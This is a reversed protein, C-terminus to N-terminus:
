PNLLEVTYTELTLADAANATRGSIVLSQSKTTDIAATIPEQGTTGFSTATNGYGYQSNTVNRNTIDVQVRMGRVAVTSGRQDLFSVGGFTINPGKANTNSTMTFAATVRLCGNASLSNAPIPITALTTDLTTGTVSSPVASQGPLRYQLSQAPVSAAEGLLEITYGELTVTDAVNSLVASLTLNQDKTTDVSTTQQNATANGFGGASNFETIQSNTVGRARIVIQQQMVSTTTNTIGQVSSGGFRTFLIKSDANNTYSWLSTIRIAGNPGLTGAPVRVSALVTESTTGTVSAPAASQGLLQYQSQTGQVVPLANSTSDLIEVTYGELVLTDSAVGLQGTITLIQTQTMDLAASVLAAGTGGVGTSLAGLTIVSSGRSRLTIMPAISRTGAPATSYLRNGGLLLSYINTNTANSCSWIPTVRISAGSLLAPIAITALVTENTTGTVSTPATSQALVQSKRSRRLYGSIALFKMFTGLNM